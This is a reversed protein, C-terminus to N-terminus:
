RWPAEVTFTWRNSGSTVVATDEGVAAVVYGDVEGGVTVIYTAGGQHEEFVALPVDGMIVGSLFWPPREHGREPAELPETADFRTTPPERDARFPALAWVAEAPRSEPLHAPPTTRVPTVPLHVSRDRQAVPVMALGSAGIAGALAWLTALGGQRRM